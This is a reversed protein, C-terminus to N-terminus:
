SPRYELCRLSEIREEVNRIEASAADRIRRAKRELHEIELETANDPLEVEIERTELLVYDGHSCDSMDLGFVELKPENDWDRSLHIYATTKM